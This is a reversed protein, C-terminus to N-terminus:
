PCFPPTSDNFCPPCATNECSGTCVCDSVCHTGTVGGHLGKLEKPDLHAITKKNLTLKKSIKKTKM